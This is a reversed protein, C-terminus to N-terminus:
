PGTKVFNLVWKTRIERFIANVNQRFSTRAFSLSFVIYAHKGQTLTSVNIVGSHFKDIKTLPQGANGSENYTGSLIQLTNSHFSIRVNEADEYSTNETHEVTWSVFLKDGILYRNSATDNSTTFKATLSPESQKHYNLLSFTLNTCFLAFILTNQLFSSISTDVEMWHLVSRRKLGKVEM